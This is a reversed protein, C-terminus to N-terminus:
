LVVTGLVECKYKGIGSMAKFSGTGSPLATVAQLCESDSFVETKEIRM